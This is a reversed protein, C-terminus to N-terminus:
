NKNLRKRRERIRVEADSKVANWAAIIQRMEESSEPIEGYRVRQYVDTLLTVENSYDPFLSILQPLFEQPTFAPLRPTDLKECFAM